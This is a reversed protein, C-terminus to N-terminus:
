GDPPLGLQEDAPCASAKDAYVQHSLEVTGLPTQYCRPRKARAGARGQKVAEIQQQLQRELVQHGLERWVQTFGEVYAETSQEAASFLPLAKLQESVISGLQM